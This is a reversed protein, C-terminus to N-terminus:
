FSIEDNMEVRVPVPPPPPEGTRTVWDDIKLVPKPKLGGFRKSRYTGNEIRVVPILGAQRKPHHRWRGLLDSVSNMAVPGRAVYVFLEGGSDHRAMPIAFQEKWPDQKNGDLGVLWAGQDRDGLAERKPVEADDCIRVMRVDPPGGENFKIFSRQTEHLFAVFKTGSPVEVNDDLTRHIGTSGNFALLRGGSGGWEALHRDLAEDSTASPVAPTAIGTLQQKNSPSSHVPKNSANQNAVTM